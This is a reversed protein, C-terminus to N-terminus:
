KNDEKMENTKQNRKEEVIKKVEQMRAKLFKRDIHYMEYLLDSYEKIEEKRKLSFEVEEKMGDKGKSLCDKCQGYVWSGINIKEHYYSKGCNECTVDTENEAKSFINHIIDCWMHVQDDSKLTNNSSDIHFYFRASGFKEKVQDFIVQLGSVKQIETVQKCLQDLIFYWGPGISFGWCMCTVNMPKTRDRFLDSYTACMYKDFEESSMKLFKEKEVNELETRNM